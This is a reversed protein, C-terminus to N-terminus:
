FFQSAVVATMGLVVMAAGTTQKSAASTAHSTNANNNSSTQSTTGSTSSPAAPTAVAANNGSAPAPPSAAGGNSSSPTSASANSSAGSSGVGGEITFPGAFALDPSTGLEFAYESGNEIEFPIKWVYKMDNANVNTAITMIPQLASSPGKALVIQPITQVSPNIWSIIAEQGAKYKTNALPSTISVIAKQASVLSALYVASVFLSAGTFKM